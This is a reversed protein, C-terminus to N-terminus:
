PASLRRDTQITDPVVVTEPALDNERPAETGARACAAAAAAIGDVLAERLGAGALRADLFGALMADGAGVASRLVPVPAEGHVIQGDGVVVAGDSGLTVLVTGGTTEALTAAAAAVDGLTPLPRGVLEVLEAHNPKVLEPRAGVAASLALGSSDVAVAVGREHARRTLVAYLDVPAGPPLSGCCAIWSGDPSGACAELTAALLTACEAATLTPGPENVKTVAGDPEVLSINSRVAGSIPVGDWALGADDLLAALAPGDPGGIPLVARTRRGRAALALSVNVGKGSPQRTVTGARLVEGRRLAQIPVTRDLSPNASLTVVLPTM